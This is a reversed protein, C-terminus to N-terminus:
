RFTELVKKSAEILKDSPIGTGPNFKMAQSKDVGCMAQDILQQAVVRYDFWRNFIEYNRQTIQEWKDKPLTAAYELYQAYEKRTASQPIELYNLRPQYIAESDYESQRFTLPKGVPVCGLRIAEPVVGNLHNGLGDDVWSPDLFLLIEAFAKDREEFSLVGYYVMGNKLATDWIRRDSLKAPADKPHYYKCKDPSTMYYYHLGIGAIARVKCASEEPKQMYSIATVTEDVHKWAKFIQCAIFGKQKEEYTIMRDVPYQPIMILTQGIGLHMSSNYGRPHPATVTINKGKVAELLHPYLGLLNGDHITIIQRSSNEFLRMWELNERKSHNVPMSPTPTEWIVIDYSSLTEIASNIANGKYPIRNSASFSWGFIPHVKLETEGDVYGSSRTTGSKSVKEQYTLKLIDCQHGLEKIGKALREVYTIIGGLNNLDHILLAIKM